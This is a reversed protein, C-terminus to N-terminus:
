RRCSFVTENSGWGRVSVWVTRSVSVSSSRRSRFVPRRYRHRFGQLFPLSCAMHLYIKIWSCFRTQIFQHRRSLIAFPHKHPQQFLNDAHQLFMTRKYSCQSDIDTTVYCTTLRSWGIYPGHDPYFDRLITAVSNTALYCWSLVM